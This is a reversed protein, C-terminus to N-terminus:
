HSDAFVVYGGPNRIPAAREQPVPRYHCPIVRGSALFTSTSITTVDREGNQGFTHSASLTWIMFQGPKFHGPNITMKWGGDPEPLNSPVTYLGDPMNYVNSPLDVQRAYPQPCVKGEPISFVVGPVGASRLEDSLAAADQSNLIEETVKVTVLGSPDRTVAYAAPQAGGAWTLLGAAVACAAGAIGWVTRRRVVGARRPPQGESARVGQGTRAVVVATLEALRREQYGALPTDDASIRSM